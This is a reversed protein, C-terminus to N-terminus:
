RRGGELMWAHLPSAPHLKEPSMGAEHASRASSRSIVTCGPFWSSHGRGGLPAGNSAQLPSGSHSLLLSLVLAQLVSGSSPLLLPLPKGTAATATGHATSPAAASAPAAKQHRRRLRLLGAAAPPLGLGLELLTLSWAQSSARAALPLLLPAAAAAAPPLPALGRPGGGGSGARSRSASGLSQAMCGSSSCYRRRGSPVGQCSPLPPKPTTTFASRWPTCGTATLTSLALAGAAPRMPSAPKWRSIAM